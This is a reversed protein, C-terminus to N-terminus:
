NKGPVWLDRWELGAEQMAELRKRVRSVELAQAGGSSFVIKTGAAKAAKLAAVDPAVDRDNVVLLNAPAEMLDVEMLTYGFFRAQAAAAEKAARGEAAVGIDILPVNDNSFQTVLQDFAADEMVIGSDEMDDPLVKVRIKRYRVVSGPDHAQFAFTGGNLLRGKKDDPRWANAPETYECILKGDIFTQITQGVVRIRYDFWVGDGAPAKWTNRVAYVSGTMKHEVYNHDGSPNSNIVQCEYGAAPWGEDQYRTHVYIGSNSGPESMVEAAFEFNRFMRGEVEGVYFLHSRNGKTVFAGDEIAWSEPNENAKWGDFSKGDFLSVWKEKASVEGILAFIAVALVGITRMKM